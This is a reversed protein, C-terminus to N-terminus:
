MYIKLFQNKKVKIYDTCQRGPYTTNPENVVKLEKALSLNKGYIETKSGKKSEKVYAASNLIM